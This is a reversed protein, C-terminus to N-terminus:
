ATSLHSHLLNIGHEHVSRKLRPLALLNAKGGIGLTEFEVRAARMEANAASRSSACRHVASSGATRRLLRALFTEAGAMRSPTIVHLIRPSNSQRSHIMM